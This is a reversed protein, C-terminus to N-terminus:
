VHARGIQEDLMKSDLEKKGLFLADLQYTFTERTKGLKETLRSFLSKKKEPPSKTGTEISRNVPREATTKSETEALQAPDPAKSEELEPHSTDQIAESDLVKPSSSEPPQTHTPREEDVADQGTDTLVAVTSEEDGEFSEPISDNLAAAEDHEDQGDSSLPTETSIEDIIKKESPAVTDQKKFKKKFWGLM